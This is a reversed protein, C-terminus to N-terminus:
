SFWSQTIRHESIFERLISGMDVNWIKRRYHAGLKSLSPLIREPNEASTVLVLLAKSGLLWAGKLIGLGQNTEVRGGKYSPMNNDSVILTYSHQSLLDEAAGSTDEYHVELEPFQAMCSRYQAMVDPDDEVILVRPKDM